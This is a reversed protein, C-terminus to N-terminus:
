EDGSLATQILKELQQSFQEPTPSVSNRSVFIKEHETCRPNELDTFLTEHLREGPRLGTYEIEIDEGPKLGSLEIMDRALDAIKIPAGM